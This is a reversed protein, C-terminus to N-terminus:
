GGERERAHGKGRRRSLSHYAGERRNAWQGRQGRGIRVKNGVPGTLTRRQCDPEWIEFQNRAHTKSMTRNISAPTGNKLRSAKKVKGAISDLAKQFTYFLNINCM